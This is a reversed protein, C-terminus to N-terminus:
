EPFMSVLKLLFFCVETRVLCDVQSQSSAYRAGEEEAALLLQTYSMPAEYAVKNALPQLATCVLNSDGVSTHPGLNVPLNVQM